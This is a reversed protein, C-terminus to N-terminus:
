QCPDKDIPFYVKESFLKKTGLFAALAAPSRSGKQRVM